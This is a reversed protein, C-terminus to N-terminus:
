SYGMTTNMYFGFLTSPLAVAVLVAALILYTTRPKRNSFVPVGFVVIAVLFPMFILFITTMESPMEVAVISIYSAAVVFIGIAMPLYYLVYRSTVRSSVTSDITTPM